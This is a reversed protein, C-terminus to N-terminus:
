HDKKCKKFNSKQLVQMTTVPGADAVVVDTLALMATVAIAM